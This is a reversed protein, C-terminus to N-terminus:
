YKWLIDRDVVVAPNGAVMTFPKVSRTVVAGAAVIAGQGITVGSMITCGECLWVKDKIIVPAHNKYGARNLYHGGNNDRITVNRGIIVDKGIEIRHACIINLGINSRSPGDLILEGGTHVQVDSGWGIEFRNKVKLTSHEALLLHTEVRTKKWRGHGVILSNNLEINASKDIEEVSYPAFRIRNPGKWYKIPTYRYTRYTACPHQVIYGIKKLLVFSKRLTGKILRRITFSKPVASQRGFDYKEALEGFSLKDVDNFFVKRDITPNLVRSTVLAPNGALANEYPLEVFNMREKVKNFWKQGKISNVLILSTGLNKDMDKAHKEIGWFDALSIDSIRPFGRFKCNYCCPRMYLGTEIYGKTFLNEHRKEYKVQGDKLIAKFTLNRWGYEKSKAKGYVIPSGYRDEFSKLYSRYIKPSNIGLCVFDLILLNEYNKRLFSRLGAMQCPCGCVVVNKGNDLLNKVQNYFGSFDSQTYKSSRLKPLDAKNDTLIQKVSMYDDSYVAGGVYGGDRFFRNAFVSFIGGSTSDFVVELDKNEGAYCDPEAFDNKKLKDVNIVPCTRTCLECNICKDYDIKPYWFGENDTPFSIAKTPCIDGCANCGCCDQKSLKDIPM